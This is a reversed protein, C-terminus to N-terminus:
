QTASENPVFLGDFDAGPARLMRDAATQASAVTAGAEEANIAFDINAAKGLIEQFGAERQETSESNAQYRMMMVRAKAKTKLVGGQLLKLMHRGAERGGEKNDTAIYGLYKDSDK